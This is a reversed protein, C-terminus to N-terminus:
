YLSHFINNQLGQEISAVHSLLHPHKPKERQTPERVISNAQKLYQILSFKISLEINTFFYM